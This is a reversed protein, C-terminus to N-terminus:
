RLGLSFNGEWAEMSRLGGADGIKGDEGDDGGVVM